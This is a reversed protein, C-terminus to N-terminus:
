MRDGAHATSEPRYLQGEQKPLLDENKVNPATVRIPAISSGIQDLPTKESGIIGAAIDSLLRREQM